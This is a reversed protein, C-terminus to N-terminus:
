STGQLAEGYAQVLAPLAADVPPMALGAATLKATSLVCNSRGAVVLKRLAELDVVEFHHEADVHEQYLRLLDAHYEVGDNVLNWVGTEGREILATAPAWFDELVTVSNAVSVIRPYRLLKTLLNRPSPERSLPMRIRLQLADLDRLAAESLLKTRAYLSGMFNPPDEESFGAGGNDGEYICGSGVHTFHIGREKCASALLIAGAVNSRYTAAADTECADVNPQGTKGACNVVRTPRHADLAAAVAPGDAIDTPVLTAELRASFQTGIWGAGFFLIDSM